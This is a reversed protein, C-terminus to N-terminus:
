LTTIFGSQEEVVKWCSSLYEGLNIVSTKAYKKVTDYEKTKNTDTESYRYIYKYM